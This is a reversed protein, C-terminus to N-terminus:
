GITEALASVVVNRGNAQKDRMEIETADMFCQAHRGCHRLPQGILNPRDALKQGSAEVIRGGARTLHM